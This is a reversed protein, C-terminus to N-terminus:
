NLYFKFNIRTSSVNYIEPKSLSFIQLDSEDHLYDEDVSSVVGWSVTRHLRDEGSKVDEDKFKLSVSRPLGDEVRGKKEDEDEFRLSVSRSLKEETRGEREDENEDDFRLSLSRQLGDENRVEKEDEDEFRLSSSRSIGDEDSEKKEDEVRPVSNSLADKDPEPNDIKITEPNERNEQETISPEHNELPKLHLGNEVESPDSIM